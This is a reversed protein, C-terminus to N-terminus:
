PTLIMVSMVSHVSLVFAFLKGDRVQDNYSFCLTEQAHPLWCLGSWVASFHTNAMENVNMFLLWVRVWLPVLCRQNIGSCPFSLPLPLDSIFLNRGGLTKHSSIKRLSKLCDIWPISESLIWVSIQINFTLATLTEQLSKLQQSKTLNGSM